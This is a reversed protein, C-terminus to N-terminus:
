YMNIRVYEETCDCTYLVAAGDGGTGLDMTITYRNSTVIGRLAEPDPLAPTSDRLIWLDNYRIGLRDPDIEVGCYGMVDVIRSWAPYTGAWGTKVLCSNAVARAARDAEAHDAAGEARLEIFKTMGEGDWVIKMALDFVLGNLATQFLTWDPHEPTLPKNGARGWRLTFAHRSAAGSM